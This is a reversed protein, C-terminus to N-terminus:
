CHSRYNTISQALKLPLQHQSFQGDSSSLSHCYLTVMCSWSVELTTASTIATPRCSLRYMDKTNWPHSRHWDQPTFMARVSKVLCIVLGGESNHPGQHLTNWKSCSVTQTSWPAKGTVVTITHQVHAGINCQSQAKMIQFVYCISKSM